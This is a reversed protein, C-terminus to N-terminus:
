KTSPAKTSTSASQQTNAPHWRAPGRASFLPKRVRRLYTWTPKTRGNMAASTSCGNNLVRHSQAPTPRNYPTKPHWTAPGRASFLPKRVRWLYTWTPKTRGDMAASTRCGSNLVRHSQAPKPRNKSTKQTGRPRGGLVLCHSESVGHICGHLSPAAMWPRLLGAAM